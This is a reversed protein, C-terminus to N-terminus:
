NPRREAAPDVVIEGDVATEPEARQDTAEQVEVAPDEARDAATDQRDDAPDSAEAAEPTAPPEGADPGNTAAPKPLEGVILPLMGATGGISIDGEPPVKWSLTDLAGCASCVPAWSAQVTHCNECVWQPGRSASLAKALWARVVHDEAGEGREIAAMITLARATPAETALDGLAKRAAAFNEAAINLEALMMRTEPHQPHHRTLAGFRKVRDTPSEDPAIEAFTAALDPHPQAEWAKTVIRTAYRPKGQEIYSRAAMVAAPVLDPSLRNAEIAAERAKITNGEAFVEKAESLALVADRRRFVDRPLAGHKLKAGLTQRAGSWDEHEAQLRLLIDQTEEHKPKLRFAREALKLATDTDGDALKQKMIGRVGVFRTREDELLRKYVEEAKKRDGAMEAAQATILNTLEPRRLYKEAKSAKSMALRAEGSALAMLGDALAQFGKRERNRGFWRTIATEDGNLFRLFAVLFGVVKIFVWVALVLLVMAIVSQLPGLTFEMGAVSIQVGGEADMLYGAGLTLAAILAVFLVIKILSWLM